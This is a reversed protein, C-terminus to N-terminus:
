RVCGALLHDRETVADKLIEVSEVYAKVTDAPPSDPQLKGVPLAPDDPIGDICPAPVPYLVKQYVVQPEAACGSLILAVLGCACSWLHQGM